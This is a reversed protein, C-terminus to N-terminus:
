NTTQGYCKRWMKVSSCGMQPAIVERSKDVKSPLNRVYVQDGMRLIAVNEGVKLGSLLKAASSPVKVTIATKITVGDVDYGIFQGVVEEFDGFEVSRQEVSEHAISATRTM